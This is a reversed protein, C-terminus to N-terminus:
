WNTQIWKLDDLVTGVKAVDMKKGFRTKFLLKIFDWKPQFEEDTEHVLKIWNKTNSHLAMHFYDFAM